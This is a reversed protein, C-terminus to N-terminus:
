RFNIVELYYSNQSILLKNPKHIMTIRFARDVGENEGFFDIVFLSVFIVENGTSKGGAMVFFSFLDIM